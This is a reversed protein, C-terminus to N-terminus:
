EVGVYEYGIDEVKGKIKDLDLGEGEIVVQATPLDVLAKEVGEMGGINKEVNAKCHNCTMGNVKITVQNMQNDNIPQNNISKTISRSALWKQVYGNIILGVLTISSAVALWMPVLHNGHEHIHQPMGMLLFERTFFENIIAGFFFSGVIITGLYIAAVKKGMTKAIVTITAVNTAPGAMLFVLVAGPSVGKMLLVAAIPVSGTACVYIPVAAVLVILMGLYPNSITQSFYDDPVLVSILAAIALGIVLWKAIDQLFEVFAYHLMRVVAPKAKKPVATSSCSGDECCDEAEKVEEGKDLKNTLLGGAIGTFLAVVPRIIALPWGLLSYTAMVSDVGTQPTSILFSVTAGKSAGNKNIAVGTPIVGCSCLPLPVGLLAANLVSAFNNKGLYKNVKEQPFYVHLIGAILFGLLLYPAMENTLTILASIYDTIFEM